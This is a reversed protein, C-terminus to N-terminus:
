CIIKWGEDDKRHTQQNNDHPVREEVFQVFVFIRLVDFNINGAKLEADCM